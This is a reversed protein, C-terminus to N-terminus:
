PTPTTLYFTRSYVRIAAAVPAPTINQTIATRWQTELQGPTWTGTSQPDFDTLISNGNSGTLKGLQTQSIIPLTKSDIVAIAVTIAAVDQWGNLSTHNTLSPDWPTNSLFTTATGSLGSNLPVLKSNASQKLTYFYEFRIVGPGILEYDSDSTTPSGAQPWVAQYTKNNLTYSIAIPIPYYVMPVDVQSTTSISTSSTATWVLGKGLREMAHYNASSSNANVRYAVLSLPGQASTTSSSSYYGPVQSYFAIQDNGSPDNRVTDTTTEANIPKVNDANTTWNVPTSSNTAQKIYYDVDKRVVMREFDFAMRDFVTRAQTDTDMRKTGSLSVKSTLNFIQSTVGILILLVVISVLMEVLTFSERKRRKLAANKLPHAPMQM